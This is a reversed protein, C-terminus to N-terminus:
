QCIGINAKPKSESIKNGYIDYEFCTRRLEGTNKDEVSVGRVLLTNEQDESYEYTTIVEDSDDECGDNNANGNKCFSEKYLVWIPDSSVSLNGFSNKIYPFLQKYFYRTEPAINNVSPSTVKYPNGSDCHYTFNTRFGRRDEVWSPKGRTSMNDCDNNYGATYSQMIGSQSTRSSKTLNGYSDYEFDLVHDTFRALGKSVVVSSGYNYQISDIRDSNDYTGSIGNADDRFGVMSGTWDSVVKVIPSSSQNYSGSYKSEQPFYTYTKLNGQVLSEYVVGLKLVQCDRNASCYFANVYKYKRTVTGNGTADSIETVRSHNTGNPCEEVGNGVSCFRSHTYIVVKGDPLTLTTDGSSFPDVWNISLSPWENKYDCSNSLIPCYDFAMNFATVKIPRTWNYYALKDASFDPINESNSPYTYQLQYGASSTVSQIRHIRGNTYFAEKFNVNLELGNPYKIRKAIAELRYSPHSGSTSYDFPYNITKDFDIVIGKSSTYRWLNESVKDIVGGNFLPVDKTKSNGSESINGFSLKVTPLYPNDTRRFFLAGSFNDGYFALNNSFSMLRHELKFEGAGISVGLENITINGSAVNVGNKDIVSFEPPGPISM